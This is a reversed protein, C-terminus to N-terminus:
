NYGLSAMKRGRTVSGFRHQIRPLHISGFSHFRGSFKSYITQLLLVCIRTQCFFFQWFRHEHWRRGLSKNLIYKIFRALSGAAGKQHTLFIKYPKVPNVRRRLYLLAVWFFALLFLLLLAGPDLRRQESLIRFLWPEVPLKKLNWFDCYCLVATYSGGVKRGFFRLIHDWKGPICRCVFNFRGGFRLMKMSPYVPSLTSGIVRCQQKRFARFIKMICKATLLIRKMYEMRHCPLTKAWDCFTWSLFAAYSQRDAETEFSLIPGAIVLFLVVSSSFMMDTINAVELWQDLFNPPQKPFGHSRIRLSSIGPHWCIFTKLSVRAKFCGKKRTHSADQTPHSVDGFRGIWIRCNWAFRYLTQNRGCAQVASIKVFSPIKVKFNM